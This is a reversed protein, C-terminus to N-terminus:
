SAGRRHLLTTALWFHVRDIFSALDRGTLKEILALRYRLTNRHIFLQDAAPGTACDCRLFADLTEVLQGDHQVDYDLLPRLASEALLYMPQDLTAAMLATGLNMRHQYTVGSGNALADIAEYLAVRLGSVGVHPGSVGVRANPGLQSLHRFTLRAIADVESGAPVVLLLGEPLTTRLYPDDRQTLLTHLNWPFSQLRQPPCDAQGLVVHNEVTVDVGFATLRRAADRDPIAGHRTDELLQAALERRGSLQAQLRGLELAAVNAAFRLLPLHEPGASTSLLAIVDGDLEIPVVLHSGEGSPQDPHWRLITELPWLMRAPSQSLMSGRMDVVAVPSRVRHRLLVVLGDIGRGAAIAGVLQEPFSLDASSGEALPPGAALGEPVASGSDPTDM